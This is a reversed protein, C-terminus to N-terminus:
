SNACNANAGEVDKIICRYEKQWSFSKPMTMLIDNYWHMINKSKKGLMLGIIDNFDNIKDTYKVPSYHMENKKEDIKISIFNKNKTYDTDEYLRIVKLHSLEVRWNEVKNRLGDIIPKFLGGDQQAFEYAADIKATGNFLSLETHVKKLKEWFMDKLEHNTATFIKPINAPFQTDFVSRWKINLQSDIDDKHIYLKSMKKNKAM